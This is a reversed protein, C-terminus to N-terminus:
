KPGPRGILQVGVISGVIAEDILIEQHPHPSSSKWIESLKVPADRIPIIGFTERSSIIGNFDGVTDKKNAIYVFTYTSLTLVNYFM